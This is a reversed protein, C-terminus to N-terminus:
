VANVCNVGIIGLPGQKFDGCCKQSGGLINVNSCLGILCISGGNCCAPTQQNQCTVGREAVIPSSAVLAAFLFTIAVSFQM